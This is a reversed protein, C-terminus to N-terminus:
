CLIYIVSDTPLRIADCMCQQVNGGHEALNISIYSHLLQDCKLHILKKRTDTTTLECATYFIFIVSIIACGLGM